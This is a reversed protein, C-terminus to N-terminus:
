RTSAARTAGLWDLAVPGPMPRAIGFGQLRGVGLGAVIERQARTEVGEAIVELGLEGAMRAVAGVIADAAPDFGLRAVFSQDVKVTQLPFRHLYALSSHGTGFDDLLIRAGARRLASLAAAAKALDDLLVGETVELGLSGPALGSTALVRAVLAPLDPDDLQVPSVNVALRFPTGGPGTVGARQWAAVTRAAEELVWAGLPVILGLREAAPVFEMPPVAGRTFSNWRLLAEVGVPSGTLTDVVPQYDLSFESGPMARRLDSELGVRALGLARMRADFVEIRGRGRRKARYMAADAEGLLRSATPGVGGPSSTQAPTPQSPGACLSIGISGTLYFRRGGELEYPEAWTQTMERALELAHRAGEVREAIVLFQDGEVRAVTDGPRTEERLRSAVAQLMADGAAHGFGDNVEKFADLDLMLVAVCGSGRRALASSLRNMALRRNPLGTLSDHLAGHAMEETARLRDLAGAVLNALGVLVDADEVTYERRVHSHVRLAGWIRGERGPVPVVVASIIQEEWPPTTPFREDRLRDSIIIPLGHEHLTWTPRGPVLPYILGVPAGEGHPTYAAACTLELSEASLRLIVSADGPVLALATRAAADLLEQTGTVTLATRGFDALLAQQRARLGERGRLWSTASSVAAVTAAFVGVSGVANRSDVHGTASLVVLGVACCVVTWAAQLWARTVPLCAFAVPPVWLVYTFGFWPAGARVALAADLSLLAAYAALAAEFALLRIRDVRGSLLWAGALVSAAAVVVLQIVGIARPGSVLITLIAYSLPGLLYLWGLTRTICRRDPRAGTGPEPGDRGTGDDHAAM